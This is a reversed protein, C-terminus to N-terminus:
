GSKELPSGLSPVLGGRKSSGLFGSEQRLIVSSAMAASGSFRTVAFTSPRMTRTSSRYPRSSTVFVCSEAIARDWLLLDTAGALGLTRVHLAKPFCQALAQVLSEPLNEDLLFRVAM